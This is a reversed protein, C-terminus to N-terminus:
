ADTRMMRWQRSHEILIRALYKEGVRRYSAAAALDRFEEERRIRRAQTACYSPATTTTMTREEEEPCGDQGRYLHSYAM